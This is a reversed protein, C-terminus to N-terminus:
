LVKFEIRRNKAKNPETDNPAIPRSEGFGASKMRAAAIGKDKLYAVISSARKLSLRQNYNKSGDSDTHGSIEFSAAPCKEAINFIKDLTPYSASNIRSSNTEFRVIGTRAVENLAGGCVDAAVPTKSALIKKVDIVPEETKKEVKKVTSALFSRWWSDSEEEYEMYNYRNYIPAPPKVFEDGQYGEPLYSTVTERITEIGAVSLATGSLRLRTDNLTAEGESMRTMVDLARLATVSWGDPLPVSKINMRNIIRRGPFNKGAREVMLNKTARDPVDGEFMLSSKSLVARWDLKVPERALVAIDVRNDFGKPLGASLLDQIGSPLSDNKTAGSVNLSADTMTAQGNGLQSLAALAVGSGEFWGGPAGRAVVLQDVVQLDPFKTKALAVVKNKAEVSPAYGGLVLKKKQVTASWTFPSVKPSVIDRLKLHIGRPVDSRLATDIQNFAGVDRAEGSITFETGDLRARGSHLHGLQKFAFSVGSLWADVSPAGRAIKMRDDIELNPFSASAMGILTKRMEDNPVFGKLRVRGEKRTAMWYYNDVQDVLSARDDVIRVGYAAQVIEIAKARAGDDYAIGSLVGDRGEFSMAAWPLGAEKLALEGQKKLDAEIVPRVFYNVMLGILALPILGWLWRLPRCAM